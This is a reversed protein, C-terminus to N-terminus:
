ENVRITPISNEDQIDKLVGAYHFCHHLYVVYDAALASAINAAITDANTNLNVTKAPYDM